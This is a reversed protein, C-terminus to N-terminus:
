SVQGKLDRLLCVAKQQVLFSKIGVLSQFLNRKEHYPNAGSKHKLHYSSIDLKYLNPIYFSQPQCVTM